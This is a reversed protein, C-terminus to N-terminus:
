AERSHGKEDSSIGLSAKYLLEAKHLLDASIDGDGNRTNELMQVQKGTIGVEDRTPGDMDIVFDVAARQNENMQSYEKRNGSM